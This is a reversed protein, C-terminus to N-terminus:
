GYTIFKNDPTDNTVKSSSSGMTISTDFTAAGEFTLAGEFTFTGLSITGGPITKLYRLKKM